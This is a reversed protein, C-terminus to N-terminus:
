YSMNYRDRGPRNTFSRNYRLKGGGRSNGYPSNGYDENDIGNFKQRGRYNGMKKNRGSGRQQSAMDELDQPVQQGAQELVKVLDGAMNANEDTM